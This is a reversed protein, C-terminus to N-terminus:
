ENELAEFVREFIRLWQHPQERFNVHGVDSWISMDASLARYAAPLAAQAVLDDRDNGGVVVVKRMNRLRRDDRKALTYVAQDRYFSLRHSFSLHVYDMLRDWDVQVEVNARKPAVELRRMAEYRNMTAALAHPIVIRAPAVGRLPYRIDRAGRLPSCVSVYEFTLEPRSRTVDYALRGGMSGGILTFRNYDSVWLGDIQRAVADIVASPDFTTWSSNKGLPGYEVVLVEGYQKWLGHLETSSEYGPCIMGPLYVIARGTDAGGVSRVTCRVESNTTQAM